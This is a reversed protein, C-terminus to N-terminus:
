IKVHVKQRADELTREVLSHLKGNFDRYDYQVYSKGNVASQYIEYHEEGLGLTKPDFM